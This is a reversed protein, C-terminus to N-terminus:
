FLWKLRELISLLKPLFSICYTETWGFNVEPNKNYKIFYNEKQYRAKSKLLYELEIIRDTDGKWQHIKFGSYGRRNCFTNFGESSTNIGIKFSDRCEVIYFISEESTKDSYARGRDSRATGGSTYRYISDRNYVEVLHNSGLYTGKKHLNKMDLSHGVLQCDKSCFDRFGQRLSGNKFSSILNNCDPNKCKPLTGTDSIYNLYYDIPDYGHGRNLHARLHAFEKGCIKCKM